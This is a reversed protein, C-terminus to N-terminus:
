ICVICMYVGCRAGRVACRVGCVCVCVCVCVCGCVCVCVCVCICLRLYMSVRDGIITFSMYKQHYFVCISSSNGVLRRDFEGHWLADLCEWM